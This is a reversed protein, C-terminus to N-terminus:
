SKLLGAISIDEDLDEWHIGKGKGIFRWNLKQKETAKMLTPFWSLPTALERGDSLQVVLKDKDFWVKTASINDIKISTTM